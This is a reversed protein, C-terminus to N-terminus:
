SKHAKQPGRPASAATCAAAAVFASSPSPKSADMTLCAESPPPETPAPLTEWASNHLHEGTILKAAIPASRCDLGVRLRLRGTVGPLEELINITEIAERRRRNDRSVASTTKRCYDAGPLVVFRTGIQYGEAQLTKHILRKRQAGVPIALDAPEIVHIDHLDATATIRFRGDPDAQRADDFRRFGAATLLHEAHVVLQERNPCPRLGEAGFPHRGNALPM